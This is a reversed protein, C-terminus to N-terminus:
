FRFASLTWCNAITSKRILHNSSTTGKGYLPRWVQNHGSINRARRWLKITTRKLVHIDKAVAKKVCDAVRTPNNCKTRPITANERLSATTSMPPGQRCVKARRYSVHETHLTLRLKEVFSLIATHRFLSASPLKQYVIHPSSGNKTQLMLLDKSLKRRGTGVFEPELVRHASLSAWGYKQTPIVSFNKRNQLSLTWPKIEWHVLLSRFLLLM